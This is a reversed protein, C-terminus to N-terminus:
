SLLGKLLFNTLEQQKILEQLLLRQHSHRDVACVILLRDSDEMTSVDLTLDIQNGNQRGSLAPKSPNYIVQGDTLNLIFLPCIFGDMFITVVGGEASFRYDQAVASEGVIPFDSAKIFSM